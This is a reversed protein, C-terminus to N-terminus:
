FAAFVKYARTYYNIDSFIPYIAITLCFHKSGNSVNRNESGINDYVSGSIAVTELIAM